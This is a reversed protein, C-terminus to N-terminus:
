RKTLIAEHKKQVITCVFYALKQTKYKSGGPGSKPVPLASGNSETRNDFKQSNYIGSKSTEHQSIFNIIFCHHKQLGTIM